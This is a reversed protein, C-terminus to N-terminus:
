PVIMYWLHREAPTHHGQALSALKARQGPTLSAMFTTLAGAAAKQFTTRNQDVQAVLQNILQQDPTPKAVEEWVRALIPEDSQRTDRLHQRVTVIFHEFAIRQDGNLDLQRGLQSFHAAPGGFRGAEIKSWVLGGIFFVNLTLSLILALWVLRSRWGTAQRGEALTMM